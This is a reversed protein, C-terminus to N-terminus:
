GARVFALSLLGGGDGLGTQLVARLDPARRPERVLDLAALPLAPDPEALGASAPITGGALALCSIAARLAGGAMGEGTAGKLSSVPPPPAVGAFRDALAAAELADLARTGNASAHVWGIEDPRLGAAELTRAIHRAFPAPSRPYDTLGVPTSGHAFGAIRAFARAGRRAAREEAELVLFTAGESLTLGDRARDFPRAAGSRSVARWRAYALRLPESLEDVGGALVADARGAALLACGYAIANEGAIAKEAFTASPGTAGLAIALHGAPANPVTNPFLLPSAAEAGQAAVTRFFDWTTQIGACGTGVVIATREPAADLGADKVAMTGAAVAMASARDMRRLMMPPLFERPEFAATGTGTGTGTGSGIERIATELAVKGVGLPSISGIGTM